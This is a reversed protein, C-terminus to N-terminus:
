ESKLKTSIFIKKVVVAVIKLIIITSVLAIGIFDLWFKQYFPVHRGPYDLHKAGKHRIVYETWWVARERSTMPEDYVLERLKKINEKYKPKLMENIAGILSLQTLSHLELHHGIGKHEMRKANADQDGLFPLVIMPVARDIAEEMSQQGGQTIFLKIASHALLDSQPLWKSIMVNDPKNPLDDAEFKWLVNYSLSGFVKLFTQLIEASLDKSQVNSGLSMYIVGNKSNDLFSKLESSPLQKPPEIHMFGLQITNPLLPRISGMAPNTNTMLLQIRDDLQKISAKVTPFHKKIQEAFQRNYRPQLVFRFRFYYKLSKWRELFTLQGHTFPFLIEPHVVPNAENGMNEHAVLFTDLSTIGVIPCDYLEAFAMMPAYNLHEVILLDFRQSGKNLIRKVEPHSLQEDIIKLSIPMFLEMLDAEDSKGAKIGVFNFERRFVDYTSHLDIQTVNPNQINILDPTLITLQHGRAALDKMLAHFVVQHSISPTPFIGLIRASEAGSIFLVAFYIFKM